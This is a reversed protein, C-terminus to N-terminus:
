KEEGQNKMDKDNIDGFVRQYEEEIEEPTHTKVYEDYEERYDYDDIFLNSRDSRNM